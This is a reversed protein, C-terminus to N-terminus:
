QAHFPLSEDDQGGNKQRRTTPPTTSEERSALSAANWRRVLAESTEAEKSPLNRGILLIDIGHGFDACEAYPGAKELGGERVLQADHAVHAGGYAVIRMFIVQLRHQLPAPQAGDPPSHQDRATKVPRDPGILLAFHKGALGLPVEHQGAMRPTQPVSAWASMSKGNCTTEM